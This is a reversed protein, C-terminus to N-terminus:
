KPIFQFPPGLLCLLNRMHGLNNKAEDKFKGVIICIINTYIKRENMSRSLIFKLRWYHLMVVREGLKVRFEGLIDEEM